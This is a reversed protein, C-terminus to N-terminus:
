WVGVKIEDAEAKQKQSVNDRTKRKLSSKLSRQASAGEVGEGERGQGADGGELEGEV